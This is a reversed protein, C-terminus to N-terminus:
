IRGLPSFWCPATSPVFINTYPSYDQVLSTDWHPFAVRLLVAPITRCLADLGISGGQREWSSKSSLKSKRATFDSFLECLLLLILSEGEGKTAFFSFPKM